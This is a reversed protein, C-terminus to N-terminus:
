VGEAARTSLVPDAESKQDPRGVCHKLVADGPGVLFGLM